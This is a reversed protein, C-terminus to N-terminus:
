EHQSGVTTVQNLAALYHQGLDTLNKLESQPKRSRSFLSSEIFLEFWTALVESEKEASMAALAMVAVEATGFQFDRVGKRLAYKATTNADFSLIPLHHLYESKRYIKVAQRWSGDILIFLPRKGTTMSVTNCVLDPQYAYEGPFVVYPQYKPDNLLALVKPNPETRSWIYAHTDPFIDAILRGSNSPKLVEDDYMLLLFSAQAEIQTRLHCTCFDQALLCQECRVLSKGRASFPRTSISKRYQYLKHVAHM